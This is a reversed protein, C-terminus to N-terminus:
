WRGAEEAVPTEAWLNGWEGRRTSVLQEERTDIIVDDDVVIDPNEVSLILMMPESVVAVVEIIPVIYAKRRM